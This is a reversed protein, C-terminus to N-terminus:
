SKRGKPHASIRPQASIRIFVTILHNKKQCAPNQPHTPISSSNKQKIQLINHTKSIFTKILETM